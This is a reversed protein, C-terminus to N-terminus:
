KMLDQTRQMVAKMGEFTVGPVVGYGEFMMTCQMSLREFEDTRRLEDLKARSGKLLIFFNLDSCHPTLAFMDFSEFWGAKQFKELQSAIEGQLKGFAENERGPRPHNWGMFLCATAM